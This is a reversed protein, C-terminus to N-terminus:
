HPDWREEHWTDLRMESRNDLPSVHAINVHSLHEEVEHDVRGQPFIQSHVQGGVQEVQFAQSAGLNSVRQPSNPDSPVPNRHSQSPRGVLCDLAHVQGLFVHSSVALIWVIHESPVSHPHVKWAAEEVVGGLRPHGLHLVVSIPRHIQSSVQEGKHIVESGCSFVLRFSPTSPSSGGAHQVPQPQLVGWSLSSVASFVWTGPSSTHDPGSISDVNQDTLFLPVFGFGM